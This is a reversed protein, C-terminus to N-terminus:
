DGLAQRNDIANDAEPLEKAVLKVNALLEDLDTESLAPNVCVMRIVRRGFVIGWGLKALQRKDLLDCIKDSPKGTVEFCVNIWEPEFSLTLEPDRSM